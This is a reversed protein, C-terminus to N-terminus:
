DIVGSGLLEGEKYWAAFQGPTVGRQAEDFVFYMGENRCFLKANQLPQRYRIRVMFEREEGPEMALDPRIWHIDKEPVFLGKRFLGPHDQGQGTYIINNKIDTALIFLPKPKGGVNLGKRQGITYYHAGQHKGVIIGDEQKYVFPKSFDEIEPNRPIFGQYGAFEEAFVIFLGEKPKIQQKIFDTLSVKGV